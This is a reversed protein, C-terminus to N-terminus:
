GSLQDQLYRPTFDGGYETFFAHTGGCGAFFPQDLARRGAHAQQARGDVIYVQPFAELLARVVRHDIREYHIIERKPNLILSGNMCIVYMQENMEGFDIMSTSRGTAVTFFRGSEIVRRIVEEILADSEHQANLLTGDLDCAFLRIM